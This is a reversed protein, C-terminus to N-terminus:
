VRSNQETAVCELPMGRRMRKERPTRKVRGIKGKGKLTRFNLITVWSVSSSRSPRRRRMTGLCSRRRHRLVCRFCLIFLSIVAYLFTFHLQLTSFLDNVDGVQGFKQYVVGFKFTNNVEHEDYAVIM